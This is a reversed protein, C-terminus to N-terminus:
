LVPDLVAPIGHGRIAAARYRALLGVVFAGVLPVIISWAGLRVISPAVFSTSVRGYYAVNTILGILRTLVNALLAAGIGVLIAFGCIVVVRQDVAAYEPPADVTALAPALSPAVPLGS